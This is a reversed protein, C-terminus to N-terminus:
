GRAHPHHFVNDQVALFHEYDALTESEADTRRPVLALSASRPAAAQKRRPRAANNPRPSM